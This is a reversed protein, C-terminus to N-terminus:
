ASLDGLCERALAVILLISNSRKDGLRKHAYGPRVNLNNLYHVGTFCSVKINM